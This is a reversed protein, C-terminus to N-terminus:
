QEGFLHACVEGAKLFKHRTLNGFEAIETASEIYLFAAPKLLKEVKELDQWLNQSFPPDLFVVDFFQANNIFSDLLAFADNQSIALRDTPLNFRQANEKLARFAQPNSDNLHVFDAGRSIAEFGLAGSGAFLDLVAFGQLNQGLWNFLTEKVRSPTPRLDALPPFRVARNKLFGAGIRTENRRM